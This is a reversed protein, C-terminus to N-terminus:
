VSITEPKTTSVSVHESAEASSIKVKGSATNKEGDGGGEEEGVRHQQLAGGSNKGQHEGDRGGGRRPHVDVYPTLPSPSPSLSKLWQRRDHAAM